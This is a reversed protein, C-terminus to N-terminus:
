YCMHSPCRGCVCAPERASVGARVGARPPSVRAWARGGGGQGGQGARRREGGRREAAARSPEARSRPSSPLRRLPRPPPSVFHLWMALSVRRNRCRCGAAAGQTHPEPPPPSLEAARGEPSAPAAPLVAPLRGEYRCRQEDLGPQREGPQPSGGSCLRLAPSRARRRNGRM